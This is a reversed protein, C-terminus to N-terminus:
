QVGGRDSARKDADIWRWVAKLESAAQTLAVTNARLETQLAGLTGEIRALDKEVSRIDKRINAAVTRAVFGALALLAPMALQAIELPTM